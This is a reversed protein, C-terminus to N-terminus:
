SKQSLLFLVFFLVFCFVFCFCVSLCLFLCVFFFGLIALVVRLLLLVEPPIMM